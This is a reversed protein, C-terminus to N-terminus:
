NLLKLFYFQMFLVIKITDYDAKLMVVKFSKCKREWLKGFVSLIGTNKKPCPLGM